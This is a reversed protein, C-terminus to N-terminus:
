SAVNSFSLSTLSIHVFRKSPARRKKPFIRLLTSRACRAHGRRKLRVPWYGGWLSQLEDSSVRAAGDRWNRLWDDNIAKESPQSQESKLLSEAHLISKAVNVEDLVAQADRAQSAGALLAPMNLQPEARDDVVEATQELLLLSKGVQQVKKTGARIELADREAQAILLVEDTRNKLEAKAARRTQWPQLLSGIGKDILSEWMKIVLNEGPFDM